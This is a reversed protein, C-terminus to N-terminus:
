AATMKTKVPTRRGADTFRTARPIQVNRGDRASCGGTTDLSMRFQVRKSVSLQVGPYHYCGPTELAPSTSTTCLLAGRAAFRGDRTQRLLARSTGTCGGPGVNVVPGDVFAIGSALITTALTLRPHTIKRRPDASQATAGDCSAHIAASM